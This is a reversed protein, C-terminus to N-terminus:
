QHAGILLRLAVHAAVALAVIGVTKVFDSM